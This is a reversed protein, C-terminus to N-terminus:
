LIGHIYLYKLIALIILHGPYFYRYLYKNPRVARIGNILPVTAALLQRPHINPLLTYLGAPISIGLQLSIPYGLTYIGTVVSFAMAQLMNNRLGWFIFLAAYLYWSYSVPILMMLLGFFAQLCRKKEIGEVTWAFIAFGFIINLKAVKFIYLCPLQSALAIFLLRRFNINGSRLTMAFLTAYLPMALRGLYRLSSLDYLYGVHDMVMTLMALWQYANRLTCQEVHPEIPETM